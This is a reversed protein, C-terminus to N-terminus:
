QRCTCLYTVLQQRDVGRSIKAASDHRGGSVTSRGCLLRIAAKLSMQVRVDIVGGQGAETPGKGCQQLGPCGVGMPGQARAKSRFEHREVPFSWEGGGWHAGMEWHICQCMNSKGEELAKRKGRQDVRSEKRVERFQRAVFDHDVGVAGQFPLCLREYYLMPAREGEWVVVRVRQAEGWVREHAQPLKHLAADM